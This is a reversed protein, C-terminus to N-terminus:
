TGRLEESRPALAAPHDETSPCASPVGTRQSKALDEGGGGLATPQSFVKLHSEWPPPVQM